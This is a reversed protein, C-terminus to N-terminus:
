STSVPMEGRTFRTYTCSHPAYSSLFSFWLIDFTFHLVWGYPSRLTKMRCRGAAGGRMGSKGFSFSDMKWDYM